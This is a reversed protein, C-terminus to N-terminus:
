QRIDTAKLIRGSPPPSSQCLRFEDLPDRFEVRMEPITIDLANDFGDERRNALCKRPTTPNLYTAETGERDPM